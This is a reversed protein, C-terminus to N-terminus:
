YDNFFDKRATPTSPKTVGQERSCEDHQEPIIIKEEQWDVIEEEPQKQTM